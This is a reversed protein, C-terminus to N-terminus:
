AIMLLYLKQIKMLFYKISDAVFIAKVRTLFLLTVWIFYGMIVQHPIQHPNQLIDTYLQASCSFFFNEM